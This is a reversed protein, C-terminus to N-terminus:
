SKLGTPTYVVRQSLADELQKQPTFLRDGVNFKPENGNEDFINKVLITGGKSAIAKYSNNNRYIIGSQFPHFDGDNTDWFADKLYVKKNNLYSHAGAYPDDFACIFKYIDFGSWSWDIWGHTETNLRPWYSSFYETQIIPKFEVGNCIDDIFKKIFTYNKNINYDMYDRPTKCDRYIFEETKLIDGTDVGTDILHALCNGYNANRLIQWSPGGGGRNQPLRTGHFNIVNNQLLDIFEQRIIWPAGFSLAISNNFDIGLNKLNHIDLKNTRFYKINYSDLIQGL